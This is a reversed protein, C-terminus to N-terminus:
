QQGWEDLREILMVAHRTQFKDIAHQAAGPIGENLAPRINDNAGHM